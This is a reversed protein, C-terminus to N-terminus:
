AGVPITYPLIAKYRAKYYNQWTDPLDTLSQTDELNIIIMGKQKDRYNSLIHPKTSLSVLQNKKDFTIQVLYLLTDGTFARESQSMDASLQWTQGSILNGNSHIILRNKYIEFPQLVHPHHGWVIDVGADVLQHFFAQKNPEITRIYEEGGHYAVIIMDSLLDIKQIFDVLKNVQNTDVFPIIPLLDQGVDKTDQINIFQTLSLFAIKKNKITLWQVSLPMDPQNNMGDYVIHPFQQKLSQWAKVSAIIGDRQQDASHNNALSFVNFGALIAPIVYNTHANFRPYGSPKKTKDIPFEINVFNADNPQLLPAIAQYVSQQNSSFLNVDHAMLDGSFSLLINNPIDKPSHTACGFLLISIAFFRVGTRM